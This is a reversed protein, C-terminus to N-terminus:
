ASNRIVLEPKILSSKVQQGYINAILKQIAQHGVEEFPQAITTLSPHIHESLYLGDYGMILVDKGVQIHKELLSYILSIAENDSPLYVGVPMQTNLKITQCIQEVLINTADLANCSLVDVQKGAKNITDTFGSIREPINYYDRTWLRSVKKSLLHKAALKGGYYNDISVSTCNHWQWNSSDGEILVIKGGNKQYDSIVAESEADLKFYPYTIIGCNKSKQSREIFELYSDKTTDFYFALPFDNKEAEESIGKMLKALLSDTRSPLFCGIVPNQGRKLFEANRNPRYGMRKAVAQILERTKEAVRADKHPKPSLVRSVVPISFGSEAAIESLKVMNDKLWKNHQSFHSFVNERTEIIVVKKFKTLLQILSKKPNKKHLYDTLRKEKLYRFRRIPIRDLPPDSTSDRWFEFNLCRLLANSWTL